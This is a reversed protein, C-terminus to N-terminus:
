KRSFFRGLIGSKRSSQLKPEEVRLGSSKQKSLWSTPPASTPSVGETRGEKLVDLIHVAGTVDGVVAMRGDPRLACRGLEADHTWLAAEQGNTTDWLRLTHDDSATMALQGDASLACGDVWSTHVQVVQLTQGSSTDWLRLTKDASASLALRGDSSLACDRVISTHGELVRLIQGSSTDWLRLTNGTAFVALRGDASLACGEVGWPHADIIHLAKGAIIDWMRLTVDGGPSHVNNSASLALRGDASLACWRVAASHGELIRLTQGTTTDWVRLTADSSASLALRGDASLACGQVWGTHGELVHLTQGSSTDWVRLTRDDSASLALRGDASLACGNVDDTHGELVHLTQGSNTDWVRLTRDDSASLALQGDASLACGLVNSTHGELIRLTQGSSTDWVRLTHDLSASLALQGDASLACGVADKTHGELVHLTRGSSTDWVRVNWYLNGYASLALRGDASLACANVEAARGIMIRLLAPDARLTQTRLLLSYGSFDVVDHLRAVPGVRGIIQNRLEGPSSSLVVSGARIATAIKQIDEDDPALTLDGLTATVGELKLKTMLYRADTLTTTLAQHASPGAAAQQYALETVKRQNWAWEGDARWWYPQGDFYAALEAHRAAGEAGKLYSRKAAERVERHYFALLQTGDADRETVLQEVEAALRAWLAVPLPLSPDIEPSRPSLRHLDARVAADRALVDLLEDEALGYKAASLDGLAHSVLLPGHRGDQELRAFIANLLGATTDPLPAVPDFSRWRRAEGAAVQLYLPLGYRAFGDLVAREQEASLTRGERGLQHSLIARGAIRDLSSLTLLQAEPAQNLLEALEPRDALVSVVIRVNPALWPPLWDVRQAEIGLQDLADIILLLPREAPVELTALNWRVDEVLQYLETLPEPEPQGYAAAVARRLDALLAVLSGSGPTISIYRALVVAGPEAVAARKAAEALLTSKGSGAEGTVLLPAARSKADVGSGERGTLYSALRALEADRGEVREAREAEFAANALAAVDRGQAAAVERAATRVAIVAGIRPQLLALYADAMASKDFDPGLGGRWPVEYRLVQEKPLHGLVAWQLARARAARQGDDEVYSAALPGAPTGGFARLACLVGAARGFEPLEGLLGQQIERHTASGEFPLREVETLEAAVAARALTAHLAEDEHREPGDARLLAYTPVLANHDLQYTADFIRRESDSLHPLLRIVTEAPLDPALIYSGYREGLLILMFLDPSLRRCRELEAFCIRLTQRETGAEETVGWRLDIPQLRFGAQACQRRLAPFVREQLVDREVQFDAFTSSIFLRITTSPVASDASTSYDAM